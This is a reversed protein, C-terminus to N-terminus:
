PYDNLLKYQAWEVIDDDIDDSFSFNQLVWVEDPRYFHMEFKFPQRDYAVFFMLYAYREAVVKHILTEHTKYGGYVRKMNSLQFALNDIDDKILEAYPSSEYLELVAEEGRGDALTKFFEDIVPLYTRGEDSHASHSVVLLGIFLGCFLLNQARLLM